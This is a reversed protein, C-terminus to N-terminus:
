ANDQQFTVNNAQAQIFPIVYRRGTLYGADVVLLTRGREKVGGWVMVSCGGFYRRQIVCADAYREGVSRYVRSRGDRMDLHFRSEDTFLINAWDQKRFRLHRRCWTLRAARHRPLLLPRIAPRQPRIHRDRLRNRVTRSSIPRLGPISRATLSSTQFRYRLHVLRIHNDQQHSTVRPRGSRQRDRTNGSQRFRRLLSQITNRHVGFHRAVINQALGAQLMGIAHRRQNETFCPMVSFDIDNLCFHKESKYPDFCVKQLGYVTM